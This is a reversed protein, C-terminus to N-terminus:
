ESVSESIDYLTPAPPTRLEAIHRDIEDLEQQMVDIESQIMQINLQRQGFEVVRADHEALEQRLRDEQSRVQDLESMAADLQQKHTETAQVAMLEDFKGGLEEKCEDLRTNLAKLLALQKEVEPNDESVRQRALILETEVQAIKDAFAKVTADSNVYDHRIRLTETPDTPSEGTSKLTKLRAELSIRRSEISSLDAMLAVVRQLEVDYRTKLDAVSLDQQLQLMKQRLEKVYDAIQRRQKQLHRLEAGAEAKKDTVLKSESRDLEAILDEIKKLQTRNAQVILTNTRADPVITVAKKEDPSVPDALAKALEECNAYKLKFVKTVNDAWPADLEKILGAIIELRSEDGFVIVTNEGGLPQVHAGRLGEYEHSAKILVNLREAIEGASAHQLKFLRYQQASAPFKVYQFGGRYEPWTKEAKYAELYWQYEQLGPWGELAFQRELTVTREIKGVQVTLTVQTGKAGVIVAATASQSLSAISRGNVTRIIEGPKLGAKEAPTDPIVQTIRKASEALEFALGIGYWEEQAAMEIAKQQHVVARAFDEELAAEKALRALQAHEPVEERFDCLAQLVSVSGPFSGVGPVEILEDSVLPLSTKFTRDHFRATEDRVGGPSEFDIDEVFWIGDRIKLNFVLQGEENDATFAESIVIAYEGRVRGLAIELKRGALMENLERLQKSEIIVPCSRAYDEAGALLNAIAEIISPSGKESKLVETHRTDIQTILKEIERNQSENAVVIIRNSAEDAVIRHELGTVLGELATVVDAAKANRLEYICPAGTELVGSLMPALPAEVFGGGMGASGFTAELPQDNFRKMEDRVGGPSEFDIDEVIWQRGKQRLNFVM